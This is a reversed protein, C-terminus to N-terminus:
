PDTPAQARARWRALTYLPAGLLGGAAETVILALPLQERGRLRRWARRVIWRKWWVAYALAVRLREGGRARLFASWLVASYGRGNDFLQRRLGGMTRRHIHRVVADPRYLITSGHELLRQFADLDGGGGTATGVDLAPDFGGIRALAEVRFAMNCGVGVEHPTYRPRGAGSLRSAFGKGMGGYVDEFLLQARTELEAPLVLGTVAEVGDIEFSSALADLWGPEPRADDDTFAVVPFRAEALGRNRARDLGPRAEVVYRVGAQEALRRTADTRPANDVVVVEFRPYRQEGLAALCGELERPRDRTCVIVSIPTRGAAPALQWRDRLLESWLAPSCRMAALSRLDPEGVRRENPVTFAGVPRGRVRVVLRIAEYRASVTPAKPTETLELDVLRVPM